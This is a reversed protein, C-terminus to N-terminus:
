LLHFVTFCFKGAFWPCWLLSSFAYSYQTYHCALLDLMAQLRCAAVGSTVVKFHAANLPWLLMSVSNPHSKYDFVGIM